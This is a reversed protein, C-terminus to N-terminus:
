DAWLYICKIPTIVIALGFENHNNIPMTALPHSPKRSSSLKRAHKNCPIVCRTVHYQIGYTQHPSEKLIPHFISKAVLKSKRTSSRQSSLTHLYDRNVNLEVDAAASSINM